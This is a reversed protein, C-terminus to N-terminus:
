PLPDTVLVRHNHTDAVVIMADLCRADYPSKLGLDLAIPASGEALPLLQLRHNGWDAVLVSQGDSTVDLSVPANLAGIQAGPHAVASGERWEARGDVLGWWRRLLGTEDTIALRHNWTDAVLISGDTLRRAMHPREFRASDPGEGGGIVTVVSGGADLVIVRGLAYETVLLQGSGDHVATAPGDLVVDSALQRLTKTPRADRDFFHLSKGYYCTICFGGKPSFDISHPGNLTGPVREPLTETHGALTARPESWGGAELLISYADFGASLRFVAHLSMDCVYLWGDPGASLGMPRGFGTIVTGSAYREVALAAGRQIDLGAPSILPM